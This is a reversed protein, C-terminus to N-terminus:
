QRIKSDFPCFSEEDSTDNVAIIDPQNTNDNTVFPRNDNNVFPRHLEPITPETTSPISPQCSKQNSPQKQHSLLPTASDNSQQTTAISDSPQQTTVPPEPHIIEDPSPAFSVTSSKQIPQQHQAEDTNSRLTTATATTANHSLEPFNPPPQHSLRLSRRVANAVNSLPTLSSDPLQTFGQDRSRQSNKTQRM